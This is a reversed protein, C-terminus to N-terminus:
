IRFSRKLAIWVAPAFLVCVCVISATDVCLFVIVGM